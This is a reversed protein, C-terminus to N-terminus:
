RKSHDPSPEGPLDRRRAIPSFVLVLIPLSMATTLAWLASRVGLATAAWGGALAGVPMTGFVLISVVSAVRGQLRDPVYGQRFASAIVSSAVIGAALLGQGLPLLALRPGPAALPILLGATETAAAALLARASGFRAALRVAAVAGLVGGIGAAGLLLGAVAPRVGLTRVLFVVLLTQVGILPLNGLAGFVAMARLYPDGFVYRVGEAISGRLRNDSRQPTEVRHIRWLCWASVVFTAADALLATAAGFVQALGGAVGPGCLEAATASGQMWANAERLQGGGTVLPLFAQRAPRFLVKAAGGAFAVAFLQVVTLHGLWVAIPVSAYLLASILNCAQMICRRGARDVWAGALLGFLLWPAWVTATLVGVAFV